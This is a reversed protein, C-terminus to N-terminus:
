PARKGPKKTAAKAENELQTLLRDIRDDQAALRRELADDKTTAADEVKAAAAEIPRTAEQVVETARADVREEVDRSLSRNTIWSAAAGCAVVLLAYGAAKARRRWRELEGTTTTLQAGLQGQTLRAIEAKMDSKLALRQEASAEHMANIALMAERMISGPDLRVAGPDTRGSGESPPRTGSAEGPGHSYPM